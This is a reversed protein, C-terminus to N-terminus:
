AIFFQWGFKFMRNQAAGRLDESCQRPVELKGLGGGTYYPSPPNESIYKSHTLNVDNIFRQQFLLRLGGDHLM